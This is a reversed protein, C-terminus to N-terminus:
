MKRKLGKIEYMPNQYFTLPKKNIRRNLYNVHHLLEYNLVEKLYYEELSEMDWTVCVSDAKVECHPILYGEDAMKTFTIVAGLEYEVEIPHSYIIITKSDSQYEALPHLKNGTRPKIEIAKLKFYFEPSLTQLYKRISSTSVPNIDGIRPKREIIRPLAVEPLEENNYIFSEIESNFNKIM